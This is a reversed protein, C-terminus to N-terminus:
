DHGHERVWQASADDEFRHTACDLKAVVGDAQLRRSSNYPASASVPQDRGLAKGPALEPRPCHWPDAVAM